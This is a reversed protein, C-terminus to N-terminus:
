GQGVWGCVQGLVAWAVLVLCRVSGKRGGVFGGSWIDRVGEGDKVFTEWIAM